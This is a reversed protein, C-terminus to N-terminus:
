SLANAFEHLQPRTAMRTYATLAAVLNTITKDCPSLSYANAAQLTALRIKDLAPDKVSKAQAIAERRASKRPTERMALSQYHQQDCSLSRGQSWM